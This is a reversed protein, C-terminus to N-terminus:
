VRRQPRRAGMRALRHLNEVGPLRQNQWQKQTDGLLTRLVRSEQSEPRPGRPRQPAPSSSASERREARNKSSNYWNKVINDSRGNLYRGIKTWETGKQAVWDLIIQGEESTIPAHNLDPNLAQHWRERCQKATRTKVHRSKEVWNGAGMDLVSSLLLNDEHPSWPGKVPRLRVVAGPQDQRQPSPGM